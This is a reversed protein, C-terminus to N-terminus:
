IRYHPHYTNSFAESHRVAQKNQAALRLEAQLSEDTWVPCVQLAISEIKQWEESWSNGFANDKSAAEFFLALLQDETLEGEVVCALNVRTFRHRFGTPERKPMLSMDTDRCAELEMSLYNRAAATDSMLHEAGFYDQYCSKYVDQLTAMPYQEHIEKCMQRIAQDENHPIAAIGGAVLAAPIGLLMGILAGKIHFGYDHYAATMDETGPIVFHKDHCFWLCDLVLADFWNVVVWLAYATVAGCLFTTCGNVYKVLLGLLLGFVMMAVMKKVYFTAGGPRNSADVLGLQDCREIIAPPYNFISKIPNRSMLFAFLTFLACAVISEILFTM